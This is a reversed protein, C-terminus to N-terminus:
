ALEVLGILGEKKIEDVIWACAEFGPRRTPASVAVLLISERAELRGLRHVILVQSLGFDREARRAVGALCEDVDPVLAKLEVASFSAIQKGPRKVRGHHLVVTGDCDGELSLFSEYLRAHDIAGAMAYATIM